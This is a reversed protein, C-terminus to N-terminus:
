LAVDTGCTGRTKQSGIRCLTCQKLSDAQWRPPVQDRNMRCYHQGRMDHHCSRWLQNLVTTTANDTRAVNETKKCVCREVTDNRRDVDFGRRGRKWNGEKDSNTAFWQNQGEDLWGIILASMWESKKENKRNTKEDDDHDKNNLIWGTLTVVNSSRRGFPQMRVWGGEREM